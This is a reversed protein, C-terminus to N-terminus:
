HNSLHNHVNYHNIKITDTVAIYSGILMIILAIVYNDTLKERLFLVSLIVGVFPAIAYYASTKTAGLVSQAKIYFLISLGYAVFGLLLIM